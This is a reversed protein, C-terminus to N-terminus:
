QAQQSQGNTQSDNNPPWTRFEEQNISANQNTDTPNFKGKVSDFRPQRHTSNAASVSLSGASSSTTSGGLSNL